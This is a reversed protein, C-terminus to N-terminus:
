NYMCPQTHSPQEQHQRCMYTYIFWIDVIIIIIIICITLAYMIKILAFILQTIIIFCILLKYLCCWAICHFYSKISTNHQHGSDLYKSLLSSLKLEPAFNIAFNRYYKFQQFIIFVETSHIIKFYNM